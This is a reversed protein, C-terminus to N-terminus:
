EGSNRLFAKGGQPPKMNPSNQLEELVQKEKKSLNKPTWVWVRVLEDGSGPRQLHQIGKGRMRFIKGSQTGAPIKLMARGSLTPVEISAGLAAQAFTVPLDYVIDDGQRDFLLHDEEEIYVVIDGPPGNRPGADGQGKLPHLKRHHGRPSRSPSPRRDRVHGSGGCSQCPDSVM